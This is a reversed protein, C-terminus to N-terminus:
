YGWVPFDDQLFTGPEVNYASLAMLTAIVREAQVCVFRCISPARYSLPNHFTRTPLFNRLDYICAM